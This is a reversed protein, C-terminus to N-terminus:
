YNVTKYFMKSFCTKHDVSVFLSRHLLGVDAREVRLKARCSIHIFKHQQLYFISLTNVVLEGHESSFGTM